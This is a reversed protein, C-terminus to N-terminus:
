KDLDVKVYEGKKDQELSEYLKKANKNSSLLHLTEILSEYDERSLLVIDSHQQRTIYYQEQDNEVSDLISSLNQRLSTYTVTKM